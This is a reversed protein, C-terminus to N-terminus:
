AASEAPKAPQKLEVVNAGTTEFVVDPLQKMNVVYCYDRHIGELGTGALLDRRSTWGDGVREILSATKCARLIEESSVKSTRCWTKFATSSLYLKREGAVYRAKPNDPARGNLNLVTDRQGNRVLGGNSLSNTVLTEPLIENLCRQMLDIGNLTLTNEAIFTEGEQYAKQFCAVLAGTDFMRLGVAELIQQATLVAGLARWQFRAGQEYGVLDGAKRVNKGVMENLKAPGIHCLARHLVAGYAGAASQKLAGFDADFSRRLPIPLDPVTSIDLELLRQQVASSEEQAVAVMDRQSRNGSMLNILAWRQSTTTGRYKNAKDRGAGNAVASILEALASEDVRGMEDFCVPLTGSMSMRQIRALDTSGVKDGQRVLEDPNGFALMTARIAATKGRGPARSYLSVSLSNAPLAFGDHYESTVFAMLPSAIGLMISLQYPELGPLDYYKRVFAAYDGAGRRVGPWVSPEWSGNEAPPLPMSYWDAVNALTPSPVGEKITGDGYIVYKGQNCHMQGNKIVLGLRGNIKPRQLGSRLRELSQRAYNMLLRESQMHSDPHLAKGALWSKLAQPTGADRQNFDFTKVTGDGSMVKLYAQATDETDEADSWADFWFATSIPVSVQVEVKDGADNEVKVPIRGYLKYCHLTKTVQYQVEKTPEPLHGEWPADSKPVPPAIVEEQVEPRSEVEVPTMEGLVIPSRIKPRYECTACGEHHKAFESCTAPGTMWRDLKEETADYDYDPHDQSLRHAAASGEVTFKAVGIMARWMPEPVQAQNESAWRIASCRELIKDITRPPGVPYLDENVSMDYKAAPKPPAEARPLLRDLAELTFAKARALVQVRKGSKKHITGPPRLVRATDCTCTPDVIFDHENAVTRLRHALLLWADPELDDVLCYYLHLGEGSSVIYTPLLGTARAFSRLAELADRQTRYPTQGKAFKEEGADVDVRLARLALVNDQTRGGGANGRTAYTATGFYLDPEDILRETERVLEEISDAWVHQKTKLRFLVSYGGDPLIDRYFQELM